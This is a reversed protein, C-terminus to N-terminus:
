GSGITISPIGSRSWTQNSRSSQPAWESVVKRGRPADQPTHPAGVAVMDPHCRIKPMREALLTMWLVSKKMSTPLGTSRRAAGNRTAIRESFNM